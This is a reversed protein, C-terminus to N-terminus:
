SVTKGALAPDTGITGILSTRYEPTQLTAATAKAASLKEHIGLRAIESGHSVKNLFDELATIKRAILNQDVTTKTDLRAQYWASAIVTERDFLERVEPDTITKGEFHGEVMIHLLAKLPPCAVDISGDKFYNEAIRKQTEVINDIGDIYDEESQEEPRLMDSTFVTDPASFMRGFFTNVFSENIRYGLRSAHITRGDKQFDDIKDLFGNKILFQPERENIFMRSWIEPVLLSIDHEFRYKRGIHGAASSFGHDTTIIYSVLAANLDYIPLLANFPGKTLAGESGAGTTSPSKGTLSAIFDMFLEPLEQYHIPAYVALSRIGPEAPNNRRGLLVSNVPMPVPADHSLRRFFRSGIEAIYLSRPDELDPRNQLYRPNKTPSGDVIRPLHTSIVFDPKGAELYANFMDQMPPTFHEFRIADKKMEGAQARPIPEYNSFFVGKRSFDLEAQKDYGRIIADDPRQFLRYECNKAFKISPKVIDPHLGAVQDAPIVSSATIDDETQIKKAPAFDKRLGFTRWTGDEAFGVRLYQTVLRQRHYILENGPRGNILDVSFRSAWDTDGEWDAKYLRKIVFVLDRVSRSITNLWENYEDTYASHQTFLRIVSGLSRTNCLLSRSEKGPDNPIEYRNGYDRHVLELAAKFDEKFNDVIVPGSIMADSLSKSIESKGGGSVTCPKHCFTGEANTGILRWRQGESPKVMEVKYGSPLIYTLGPQLSIKQDGWTISQDDLQIRVNEPLYFIDPHIKDIGYGEPQLNMLAGYRKIVNEFRHKVDRKFESLAFDEGLDAGPFAIAGGAHEEEANGLLNTAYSLQTKVEKKCYGYYNDAILTVITGSTDRSTIKFAGGDNYLEDNSEYCMGDHKQRDTAESIHPLGLDKKKLKTLQPALIVCGTHGSWHETDLRSDNEPLYPDGGNGFISEVFDLNSVLNGPAFFRVEMRKEESVGPIAPCVIPRLLLSVFVKAPTKSNGTFPLIMIDEPPNLAAKLLGAFTQLPVEKKDAPVPLGGEAVHFVGKTTRRDSAPNHCVGQNVRYSSLISSKFVDQDPPLSLMRGIGHRELVLAGAPVLAPSETDGLTKALYDHIAQDVPCLYDSLLRTKEQFSAILSRGLDLFPYDDEEGVIDHGRAALKLNVFERLREEEDPSAIAPGNKTFGITDKLRHPM